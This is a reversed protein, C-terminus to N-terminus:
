GLKVWSKVCENIIGNSSDMIVIVTVLSKESGMM